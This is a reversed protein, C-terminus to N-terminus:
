KSSGSSGDASGIPEPEQGSLTALLDLPQQILDTLSEFVDALSGAASSLASLM